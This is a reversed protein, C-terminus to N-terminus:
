PLQRGHRVATNQAARIARAAIWNLDVEPARHVARGILDGPSQLIQLGSPYSVHQYIASSRTATFAPPAAQSAERVFYHGGEGLLLLRLATAPRCHRQATASSRRKNQRDTRRFSAVEPPSDMGNSPRLLTSMPSGPAAAGASFGPASSVITASSWRASSNSPPLRQIRLLSHSPFPRKQRRPPM